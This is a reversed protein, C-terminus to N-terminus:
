RLNEMIRGVLDSQEGGMYATSGHHSMVAGTPQQRNLWRRAEDLNRVLLLWDLRPTQTATEM